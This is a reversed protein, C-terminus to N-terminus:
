AFRVLQVDIDERRAGSFRPHHTTLFIQIDRRVDEIRKDDVDTYHEIVSSHVSCDDYWSARFSYTTAMKLGQNWAGM